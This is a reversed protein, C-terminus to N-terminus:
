PQQRRGVRQIMLWGRASDRRRPSAGASRSDSAGSSLRSTATPAWIKTMAVIKATPLRITALALRARQGPDGRLGHRPRRDPERLPDRRRRHEGSLRPDRAAPASWPREDGDEVARRRDAQHDPDASPITAITANKAATPSARRCPRVPWAATIAGDPERHEDQQRDDAPQQRRLDAASSGVDISVQDAPSAGPIGTLQIVGTANATTVAATAPSPARSSRGCPTTVAM